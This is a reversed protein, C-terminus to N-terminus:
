RSRSATQGSPNADLRDGCWMRAAGEIFTEQSSKRKQSSESMPGIGDPPKYFRGLSVALIVLSVDRFWTASKL